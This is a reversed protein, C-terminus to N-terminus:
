LIKAIKEAFKFDSMTDIDITSLGSLPFYHTNGSPGHYASGYKKYNKIYSNKKWGMLCTAYVQVPRMTQSPPNKKQKKFNIPKNKYVCAIQKNEVSILSDINNSKFYNVFDYITRKELFPSTPLIQIIADCDKNNIFFDYAFQDNTSKNTSLSKDRKYFFIKNKKTYKLFKKSESNIYIKDFCKLGIVTDLIYQILPKGNLLRLNKNKVRQSGLRAPIMAYIKM